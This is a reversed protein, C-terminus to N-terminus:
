IIILLVIIIALAIFEIAFIKVFSQGLKDPNLIM